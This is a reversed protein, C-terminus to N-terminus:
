TYTNSNLPSNTFNTVTPVWSLSFTAAINYRLNLYKFESKAVTDTLEDGRSLIAAM